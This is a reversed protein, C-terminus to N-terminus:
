PAPVFAQQLFFVAGATDCATVVPSREPMHYPQCAPLTNNVIGLALRSVVGRVLVYVINAATRAIRRDEGLPRAHHSCMYVGGVSSHPVWGGVWWPWPRYSYTENTVAWVLIPTYCYRCSMGSSWARGLAWQALPPGPSLLRGAWLAWPGM